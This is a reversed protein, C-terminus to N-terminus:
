ASQWRGVPPADGGPDGSLRDREALMAWFWPAAKAPDDPLGEVLERLGPCSAALKLLLLSLSSSSSREVPVWEPASAGVVPGLVQLRYYCQGGGIKAVIVRLAKGERAMGLYGPAFQRFIPDRAM